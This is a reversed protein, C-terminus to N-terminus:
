VGAVYATLFHVGHRDLNGRARDHHGAQPAPSTRSGLSYSILFIGTYARCADAAGLRERDHLAGAVGVGHVDAAAQTLWISGLWGDCQGSADGRAPV